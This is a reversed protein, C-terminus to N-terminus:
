CQGITVTVDSIPQGSESTITGIIDFSPAMGPKYDPEWVRVGMDVIREDAPNVHVDWTKAASFGPMEALVMYNGTLLDTRYNGSSDTKISKIFTM